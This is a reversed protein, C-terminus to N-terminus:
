RRRSQRERWASSIGPTKGAPLPHDGRGAKRVDHICLFQPSRCQSFGDNGEPMHGHLEGAHQGVVVHGQVDALALHEGQHAFVARALGRQHVDEVAHVGGGAALHDDLALLNCAEVGALGDGTAHAHHMLVEHQHGGEGHRLVDNQAPLGALVTHEGIQLLGVGQGLLQHRLVSQLHVGPIPHLVDAHSQLLPHLNELGQVPARVHQDQVLGGGDEGGLLGVLKEGHDAPDDPFLLHGDDDDGVLQVLDHGDGVPHAHHACALQHTHLVGAIHVLAHQGGHHHAALHQQALKVAMVRVHRVVVHGDGQLMHLHRVVTAQGGHPVHAQLHM